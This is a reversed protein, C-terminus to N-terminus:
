IFNFFDWVTRQLYQYNSFMHSNEAFFISSYSLQLEDFNESLISPKEFVFSSERFKQIYSM